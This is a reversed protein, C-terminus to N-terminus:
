CIPMGSEFHNGDGKGIRKRVVRYVVCRFLNQILNIDSGNRIVRPHRPRRSPRHIPSHPHNHHIMNRRHRPSDSPLPPLFSHPTPLVSHPTPLISLSLSVSILSPHSPYPYPIRYARRIRAADQVARQKIMGILFGVTNRVMMRFPFTVLKM